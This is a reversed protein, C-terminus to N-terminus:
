GRDPARSDKYRYGRNHLHEITHAIQTAENEATDASWCQFEPGAPDRKPLMTKPLRPRISKAFNNAVEIISPRSRRNTSLLLTKASPYRNKFQQINMVDSGRWQYIAQDDDGVVCLLVPPKALLRILEEQAPNIDQYEDVFLYKLPEHIAQFGFPDKLAQVARTILQGYTLFRYRRLMAAYEQYVEGFQTDKFRKASILENEVVDV